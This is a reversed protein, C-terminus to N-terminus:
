FVSFTRARGWGDDRWWLYRELGSFPVRQRQLCITSSDHKFGYRSYNALELLRVGSAEGGKQYNHLANRPYGLDREIQNFSKKSDIKLIKLRQYFITEEQMENGGEEKRYKTDEFYIQFYYLLCSM